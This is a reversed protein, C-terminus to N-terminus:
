REAIVWLAIQLRAAEQHESTLGARWQDLAAEIRNDLDEPLRALATDPTSALAKLFILRDVTTAYLDGVRQVICVFRGDIELLLYLGPEAGRRATRIGTPLAEAEQQDEATAALQVQLFASTPLRRDKVSALLEDYTSLREFYPQAVDRDLAHPDRSTTRLVETDSIEKVQASRDELRSWHTVMTRYRDSEPFFNYACVKRPSETPRDIRGLRQVLRLPTWPLDFNVITGADQLNEGESIADTAILVDTPNRPADDGQALPAFARLKDRRGAQTTEGTLADVSANVLETKLHALLYDVTDIYETFILVKSSQLAARVLSTLEALKPDLRSDHEIRRASALIPEVLTQVRQRELEALRRTELLDLMREFTRVLARPSSEARRALLTKLLNAQRGLNGTLEEDEEYEVIEGVLEDYARLEDALNELQEFIEEMGTTYRRLELQINPYYRPGEPFELSRTKKQPNETGFRGLIDPLTVNVLGECLAAQRVEELKPVAEYSTLNLLAEVNELGRSIPTATLLLAYPRVTQDPPLLLSRLRDYGKKGPTRYQHCEDVIVLSDEGLHETLHDIEDLSPGPNWGKGRLRGSTIIAPDIGVMQLERRWYRELSPNNCVIVVRRIQSGWLAAGLHAAMVTKGTGTPSVLIVGRREAFKGIMHAVILKQFEALQRAPIRDPQRIRGYFLYLARLFAIYPRVPEQFVWSAEIGRLVADGLQVGAGWHHEFREIFYQVDECNVTLQGGEIHRKLGGITLNASTAFAARRDFIYIKAHLRRSERASASRLSIRGHVIKWYLDNIVARRAGPPPDLGRDLSRLFNVLFEGHAASRGEDMGGVLVRIDPNDVGDAILSFGDLTFFGTAIDIRSAGQVLAHVLDHPRAADFVSPRLDALACVTRTPRQDALEFQTRADVFQALWTELTTARDLLTSQEGDSLGEACERLFELATGDKLQRLDPVDAWQLWRQGIPSGEFAYSLRRRLERREMGALVRGTATRRAQPIRRHSFLGLVHGAQCVYNATRRKNAPWAPYDARIRDLEIVLTAIKNIDRPRQPIEPPGLRRRSDARGGAGASM